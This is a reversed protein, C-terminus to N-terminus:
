VSRLEAGNEDVITLYLTARKARYEGAYRDLRRALEFLGQQLQPISLPADDKGSIKIKLGTKGPKPTTNRPRPQRFAM